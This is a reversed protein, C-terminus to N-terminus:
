LLYTATRFPHIQTDMRCVANVPILYLHLLFPKYQRLTSTAKSNHSARCHM